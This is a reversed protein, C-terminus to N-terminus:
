PKGRPKARGGMLEKDLRLTQAKTADDQKKWHAQLARHPAEAQRKLAAIHADIAAKQKRLQLIPAEGDAKMKALHADLAAKQKNFQDIQQRITPKNMNLFRFWWRYHTATRIAIFLIPM